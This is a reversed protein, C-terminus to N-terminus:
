FGKFIDSFAIGLLAVDLFVHRLREGLAVAKHITESKMEFTVM